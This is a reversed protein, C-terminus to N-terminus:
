EPNIFHPLYAKQTAAMEDFMQQIEVLAFSGADLGEIALIDTIMSQAFVASGAGILAVKVLSNRWSLRAFGTVESLVLLLECSEQYLLTHYLSCPNKSVILINNGYIIARIDIM